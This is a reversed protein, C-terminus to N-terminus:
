IDLLGCLFVIGGGIVIAPIAFMALGELSYSDTWVVSVIYCAPIFVAAM